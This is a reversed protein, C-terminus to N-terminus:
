GLRAAADLLGHQGARVAVNGHRAPEPRHFAFLTRVARLRGARQDPLEHARPDAPVHRQTWLPRRWVCRRRSHAGAHALIRRAGGHARHIRRHPAPRRRARERAAGAAREACPLRAAAATSHRQIPVLTVTTAGPEARYLCKLEQLKDTLPYRDGTWVSPGARTWEDNAPTIALGSWRDTDNPYELVMLYYDGPHKLTLSYSITPVARGSNPSSERYVLGPKRVIRPARCVQLSGNEGVTTEVCPHPDGPNTFDIETELALDLGDEYSDGNVERMPVRGIVMLPERPRAEITKGNADRLVIGLAYAGRLLVGADLRYLLSDGEREFRDATGERLVPEEHTKADYGTLQWAITPQRNALGAPIRVRTAVSQGADFYLCPENKAPSELVIRGDYPPFGPGMWYGGGEILYDSVVYGLIGLGGTAAPAWDGAIRGPNSWGDPAKAAYQWNRDTDVLVTDGSDMVVRCQLYLHMLIGVQKVRMGICNRGPRLYPSLDVPITGPGDPSRRNSRYDAPGDWRPLQFVSNQLPVERGNVYLRYGYGAEAVARWIKGQPLDFEKRCYGEYVPRTIRLSQIEFSNEVPTQVAIVFGDPVIGARSLFSTVRADFKLTQWETGRLERKLGNRTATDGLQKWRSPPSDHRFDLTWTSSVDAKQRVRLHVTQDGSWLFLRQRLPQKGDGNGWVLVARGPPTLFGLSGDPTVALKQVQPSFATFNGKDLASFDWSRQYVDRGLEEERAPITLNVARFLDQITPDPTKIATQSWATASTVLFAMGLVIASFRLGM